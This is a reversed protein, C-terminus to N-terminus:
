RAGARLDALLGAQAARIVPGADCWYITADVRFREVVGPTREVLTIGDRAARYRLLASARGLDVVDVAETGLTDVLLTVLSALDAGDSSLVGLDWDSDQRHDGRARSGHLVLADVGPFDRLVAGRM